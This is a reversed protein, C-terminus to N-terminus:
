FSLTFVDYKSYINNLEGIDVVALFDKDKKVSEEWARATDLKLAIAKAERELARREREARALQENLTMARYLAHEADQIASLSTQISKKDESTKSAAM